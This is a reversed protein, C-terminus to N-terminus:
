DLINVDFVSIHLVIVMVGISSPTHTTPPPQGRHQYLNQMVNKATCVVGHECKYSVQIVGRVVAESHLLGHMCM